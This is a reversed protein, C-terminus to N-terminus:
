LKTRNRQIPVVTIASIDNEQRGDMNGLVCLCEHSVQTPQMNLM